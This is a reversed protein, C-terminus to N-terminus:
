TLRLVVFVSNPPGAFCSWLFPRVPDEGRPRLFHEGSGRPDGFINQGEGARVDFVSPDRCFSRMLRARVRVFCPFACFHARLRGPFCALFSSRLLLLVRLVLMRLVLLSALSSCAAFTLDPFYFLFRCIISGSLAVANSYSNTARPFIGDWPPIYTSEAVLRFFFPLLRFGGHSCWSIQPSFCIRVKAIAFPLERFLLALLGSWFYALGNEELMEQATGVFSLFEPRKDCTMVRIRVAEVPCTVVCSVLQALASALLITWVQEVFPTYPVPLIHNYPVPLIHNM